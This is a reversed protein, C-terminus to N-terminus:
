GPLATATESRVVSVGRLLDKVAVRGARGLRDPTPLAPCLALPTASQERGSVFLDAEVCARVTWYAACTSSVSDFSQEGCSPLTCGGVPLGTRFRSWILVRSRHNQYCGPFWGPPRSDLADLTRRPADSRPPRLRPLEGPKRWASPSRRSRSRRIGPSSRVLEITPHDMRHTM